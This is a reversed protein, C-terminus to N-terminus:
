RGNDMTKDDNDAAGRDNTREDDQPRGVKRETEGGACKQISHDGGGVTM